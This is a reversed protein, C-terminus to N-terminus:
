MKPRYFSKLNIISCFIGYFEVLGIIINKKNFTILSFIIKKISKIINPIIKRLALFYNYNKKYYYFKSWNYHFARTLNSILLYKSDVSDSGYHKFKIRESIYIKENMGKVKITGEPPKIFGTIMKMTTSKGAGNPGLFGLVEGSKVTMSLNDVATFDDFKKTINSISIM